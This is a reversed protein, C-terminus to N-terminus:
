SDDMPEVLLGAAYQKQGLVQWALSVNGTLKLMLLDLLFIECQDNAPWRPRLTFDVSRQGRMRGRAVPHGHGFMPTGSYRKPFNFSEHPPKGKKAAIGPRPAGMLNANMKLRDSQRQSNIRKVVGLRGARSDSYEQAVVFPVISGGDAALLSRQDSSQREM